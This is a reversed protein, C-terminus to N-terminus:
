SPYVVATVPKDGLTTHDAILGPANPRSAAVIASALEAATMGKVESVGVELELVGRPDQANAFRLDSPAKGVAALRQTMERSFAGGGFVAAGTASGKELRVGAVNGPLLAELDPAAHSMRGPATTTAAETTTASGGGRGGCGAAGLLLALALALLALPRLAPVS